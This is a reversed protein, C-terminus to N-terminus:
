KRSLAVVPDLRTAGRAPVIGFGIGVILALSLSAGSVWTPTAAPFEPYLSGVIQIIAMGGGLGLLGGALSLLAAEALFLVMIQRRVAGIALLLGVEPTRESVSVLMVNMIGIGAVILSIAAIGALAASLADLIGSVTGLIAGPTVVTVDLEDHRDEMLALIDVEAAAPDAGPTLRAMVRTLSTRNFMRMGTAVPILVLEDMDVGLHTGRVETVGIVRMRWDGIRANQGVPNTGPFLERAIKSGLVVVPAGRTFDGEPLFSGSVLDLELLDQMDTVTSMIVCQRAREGHSVTETGLAIPVTLQVRGVSRQISQADDLTLDNPAGGIGPIAGTTETRGPLIVLIDSGIFEFQSEIYVRASEGLSTLLAVSGIGVSIGLLTLGARLPHRILATFALRMLDVFTM